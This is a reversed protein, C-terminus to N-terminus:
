GRKRREMCSRVVQHHRAIPAGAGLIEPEARRPASRQVSTVAPTTVRARGPAPPRHRHPTCPQPGSDSRIDPARTSSSPCLPSACCGLPMRHHGVVAGIQHHQGIRQDGSGCHQAFDACRGTGCRRTPHAVAGPSTPSGSCDGGSMTDPMHPDAGAAVTVRGPRRWGSGFNRGRRGWPKFRAMHQLLRPVLAPGLHVQRDPPAARPSRLDLAGKLSAEDGQVGGHLEVDANTRHHVVGLDRAGPRRRRIGPRSRWTRQPMNLGTVIITLHGFDFRLCRRM